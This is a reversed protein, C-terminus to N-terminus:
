RQGLPFSRVPRTSTFTPDVMILEILTVTITYDLGARRAREWVSAYRVEDLRTGTPDSLNPEDRAGVYGVSVHPVFPLDTRLFPHLVGGYLRDHLHVLQERGLDPTLFVWQDWSLELSSFRTEVPPVLQTVSSLHDVLERDAVADTPFPFVLTIHPEILGATPDYETRLQELASTDGALRHVVAYWGEHRDGHAAAM